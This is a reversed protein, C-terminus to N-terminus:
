NNVEKENLIEFRYGLSNSFKLIEQGNGLTVCVKKAEKPHNHESDSIFDFFLKYNKSNQADEMRLVASSETLKFNKVKGSLTIGVFDRRQLYIKAKM